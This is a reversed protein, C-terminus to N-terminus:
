KIWGARRLDRRTNSDLWDATLPTRNLPIGQLELLKCMTYSTDRLAQRYEENENDDYLNQITIGVTTAFAPGRNCFAKVMSRVLCWSMGSHNQDEMLKIAYSIECGENLAKIVELCCGLEMGHYLDDLRIPVIEDWTEWYKRDIVKHGEEIWYEINNM